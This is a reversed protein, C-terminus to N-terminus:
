TNIYFNYNRQKILLFDVLISKFTYLIVIFHLIYTM